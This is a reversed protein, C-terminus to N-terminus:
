FLTPGRIEAHFINFRVFFFCDIPGILDGILVKM